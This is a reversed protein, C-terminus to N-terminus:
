VIDEILSLKKAYNLVDFFDYYFSVLTQGKPTDKTELYELNEHEIM